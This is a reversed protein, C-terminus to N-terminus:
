SSCSPIMQCRATILSKLQSELDLGVLTTTVIHHPSWIRMWQMINSLCQKYTQLPHPLWEMHNELRFLQMITVNPVWYHDIIKLQSEFDPGVLTTSVAHHPEM